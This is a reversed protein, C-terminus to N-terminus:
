YSIDLYVPLHDSYGGYYKNGGYTKNPSENGDKDRYTIWKKKGDKEVHLPQKPRFVYSNEPAIRLGKKDNIAAGSVIFQDFLNWEKNYVLTGEGRQKLAYSTNFLDANSLNNYTNKTSLAQTLSNNEPEDNFDGTIIVKANPESQFIEDLKRKLVKAATVRKIESQETGERRSPWHNVFVHLYEGNPITGKTYLIDRTYDDSLKVPLAQKEVLKFTQPNYLLAVDIGREDPSDFHVIAAKSGSQKVVDQLVSLNEVECLGVIDPMKGDGIKNLVESIRELKTQYREANWENKGTPLFDDDNKNTDDKTDFLNEVNYFAARLTGSATTQQSNANVVVPKSSNNTAKQAQQTAGCNQLLLLTWVTLFFHIHKM